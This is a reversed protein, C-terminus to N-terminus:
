SDEGEEDSDEDSDEDASCAAQCLPGCPLDDCSVEPPGTVGGNDDDDCAAMGVMFVLLAILVQVMLAQRLTLGMVRESM